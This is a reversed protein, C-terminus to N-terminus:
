PFFVLLATAGLSLPFLGPGFVSALNNEGFDMVERSPDSLREPLDWFRIRAAAALSRNEAM